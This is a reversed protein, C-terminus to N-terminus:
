REFPGFDLTLCDGGSVSNVNKNDELGKLTRGTINHQTDNNSSVDEVVGLFQSSRSHAM